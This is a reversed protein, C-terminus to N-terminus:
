DTSFAKSQAVRSRGQQYGSGIQLKGFLYLGTSTMAFALLYASALGTAGWRPVLVWALAVLVVALLLDFAFRWWMAGMVVLPHGLVANIAEPLASLSLIMLIPWGSRFSVGYLSMMPAALVMVAVAPILALGANLLLNARFVKRFGILDGGGYLNALFPIVMGFVSTPLFLILLRWRDAATYTGLQAYGNPQHVLLTNCMWMAPGVVICALFAPLSFRYLVAWEKSCGAYDYSIGARRCERRLALHNLLWNVALAAVLSAVAGELGWFWVGAFVLPFGIVGAFINVTAITRFAEFGALAGTQAGNLAGFFVLGASFMLPVALHPAALVKASLYPATLILLVALAGASSVAVISSLGLIRGVRSPDRDRFEAVHKTATLGLSLGAFLGFMGATSQIMGLEGFQSRGLLRACAISAGLTFGRSIIAGALSWLAGRTFRERLSGVPIWEQSRRAIWGSMGEMM